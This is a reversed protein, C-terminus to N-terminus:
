FLVRVVTAPCLHYDDGAPDVLGTRTLTIIGGEANDDDMIGSAVGQQLLLRM